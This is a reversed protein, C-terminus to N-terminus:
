RERCLQLIRKYGDLKRIPDLDEDNEMHDPDNFGAEVSKELAELAKEPKGALSCACALNYHTLEDEPNIRAKAM